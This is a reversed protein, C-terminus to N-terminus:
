RSFEFNIPGLASVCSPIPDLHGIPAYHRTTRENRGEMVQHVLQLQDNVSLDSETVTLVGERWERRGICATSEECILYLELQKM